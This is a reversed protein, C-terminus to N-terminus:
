NRQLVWEKLRRSGEVSVKAKLTGPEYYIGAHLVGSNRGSSHLGLNKEKDLILIRTSLGREIIQNALSLGVMGGGIIM